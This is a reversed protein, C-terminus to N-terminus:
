GASQFTATSAVTLSLDMGVIPSTGWNLVEFEFDFTNSQNQLCRRRPCLMRM